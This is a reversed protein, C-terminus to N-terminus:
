AGRAWEALQRLVAATGGGPVNELDTRALAAREVEVPDLADLFEAAALGPEPLVGIRVHALTDLEPHVTGPALQLVVLPPELPESRIEFSSVFDSVDQGGVSVVPRGDNWTVQFRNLKTM